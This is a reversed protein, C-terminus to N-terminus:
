LAREHITRALPRSIIEDWERHAVPEDGEFADFAAQLRMGHEHAQLDIRTEVRVNWEGRRWFARREAEARASAPDDEAITYRESGFAGIELDIAELRVSGRDETHTLMTVGSGVDTEVQRLVRPETLRTHALAKSSEAPGFEALAQDSERPARVPLDLVSAGTLVTVTADEAAPWAMPWYCTSLALRIRHGPLFAYATDNLAIRLQMQEGPVLASSRTHDADHNLDLLAYTVRTSRGDPSVDCLRVALMAQSRDCELAVNLVPAGLIEVRETLAATDFTLSRGDDETQDCQFEPGEGGGDQPCWEGAALGTTQPSRIALRSASGRGSGSEASLRGPSLVYHLAETSPSERPWGPEAVWRGEGRPDNPNPPVAEQMWVRLQPEEMITSPEGKLWHDWWRLAEQLFGIDPQPVGFHPYTHTWPGILGKCPAELHTLLRLIANSYGDVWGGVAYVACEIARYDECVSGHKWYADRHPHSLWTALPLTAGEIRERWIERWREGVLAPDPPRPILTFLGSGWSVGDNLVCGGMYHVDDNYRDDTSCVTVIAKLEPPRRAAVQLASFGGWSIGIMGVAGSCWPQEALWRLVQLADDQEQALYEDCLVGDSDGSGRIDVRASAYGHGAFYPHTLSDGVATFDRKRYPIYELIAPVPRQEADEPLWIRAALRTGDDLPIWCNEIERISCPYSERIKM